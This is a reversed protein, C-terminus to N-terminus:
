LEIFGKYANVVSGKLWIDTFNGNDLRKFSVHLKGGRTNVEIENSQHLYTSAVALAVATTGTGSSYTENEVGREYVRSQVLDGDVEVFNVNTGHLKFREGYRISRGENFVDVESFGSENTGESWHM